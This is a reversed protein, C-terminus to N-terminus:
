YLVFEVKILDNQECLFYILRTRTSKHKKDRSAKIKTQKAKRPIKEKVENIQKIWTNQLWAVKIQGIRLVSFPLAVEAWIVLISEVEM